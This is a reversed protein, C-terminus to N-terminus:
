FSNVFLAVINIYLKLEFKNGIPFYYYSVLASTFAVGIKAKLLPVM